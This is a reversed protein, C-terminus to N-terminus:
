GPTKNRSLGGFIANFRKGEIKLFLIEKGKPFHSRQYVPFFDLDDVGM